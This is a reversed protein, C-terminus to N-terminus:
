KFLDEGLITYLQFFIVNNNMFSFITLFNDKKGHHVNKQLSLSTILSSKVLKQNKAGLMEHCTSPAGSFGLVLRSETKLVRTSQTHKYKYYKGATVISSNLLTYINISLWMAKM